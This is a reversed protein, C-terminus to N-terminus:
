SLARKQYSSYLEVRGVGGSALDQMSSDVRLFLTGPFSRVVPLNKNQKAVAVFAAGLGSLRNRVSLGHVSMMDAPLIEAMNELIPPFHEQDITITIKGVPLRHTGTLEKPHDKFMEILKSLSANYLDCAFRLKRDYPGPPAYNSTEFLFFYAYVASALYYERSRAVGGHVNGTRGAYNYSLESLAFLLERRSDTCAITHLKELTDGPSERFAYALHFRYLVQNSLDSLGGGKLRRPHIDHLLLTM